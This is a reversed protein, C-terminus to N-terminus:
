AECFLTPPVPLIASCSGERKTTPRPCHFCRLLCEIILRKIIDTAATASIAPAPKALACPVPFSRSCGDAPELAWCLAGDESRPFEAASFLGEDPMFAVCDSSFDGPAALLWRASSLAEFGEDSMFALWDSSFDGPAALLWRVSSFAWPEFDFLMLESFSLLAPLSMFASLPLSM